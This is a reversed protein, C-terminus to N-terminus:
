ILDECEPLECWDPVPIESHFIDKYDGSLITTNDSMECGWWAIESKMPRSYRKHPCDRCDEILIYRTM